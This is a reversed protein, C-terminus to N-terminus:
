HLKFIQMMGKFTLMKDIYNAHTAQAIYPLAHGGTLVICPTSPLSSCLTDLIGRLMGPYGHRLGAQLAAATGAAIPSSETTFLHHTDTAPLLATNRTLSHALAHLGPAIVGGLFRPSGEELAVVDFTCATGLDVAICPLPYLAAVAAANAIRDAGLTATPYGRLLEPCCDAHVEDVPCNLSERLIAAAQPVVSCIIARSYAHGELTRRVSEPSIDATPLILTQEMLKGAQVFAFKTRTNSNDILLTPASSM